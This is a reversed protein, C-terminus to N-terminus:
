TKTPISTRELAISLTRARDNHYTVMELNEIYFFKKKGNAILEWSTVWLSELDRSKRVARFASPESSPHVTSRTFNLNFDISAHKAM